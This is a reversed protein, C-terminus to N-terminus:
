LKCFKSPLIKKIISSIFVDSSKSIILFKLTLKSNNIVERVSNLVRKTLFEGAVEQNIENDEVLLIRAGQIKGLMARTSDFVWDIPADPSSEDRQLHGLTDFLESPTVPKTLIADVEVGSLEKLLEERALRRWWSSRQPRGGPTEYVAKEM